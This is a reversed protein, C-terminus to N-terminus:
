YWSALKSVFTACNWPRILINVSLTWTHLVNTCDLNYIRDGWDGTLDMYTSTLLETRVNPEIM